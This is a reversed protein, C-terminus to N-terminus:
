SELNLTKFQVVDVGFKKLFDVGEDSPIKKYEAYSNLYIVKRIGTTFIIRACAICPSLTIYLTSGEVSVNNKSAYLIANQEAHLALSCSGKSDRPCGHEPWEVDCNHTGAPPGNYGLSVIRTDKTLVAGVHMKVCHSRQALKQALEMYIVDFSPKSM